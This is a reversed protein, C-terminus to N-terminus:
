ELLNATIHMELVARGCIRGAIHRWGVLQSSLQPDANSAKRRKATLHRMQSRCCSLAFSMLRQCHCSATIDHDRAGCTWWTKVDILIWRMRADGPLHNLTRIGLSPWPCGRCQCLYLRIQLTPGRIVTNGLPRTRIIYGQFNQDRAMFSPVGM